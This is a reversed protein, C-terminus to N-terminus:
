QPWHTHPRYEPSSREHTVEDLLFRIEALAVPYLDAVHDRQEPPMGNLMALLPQTIVLNAPLLRVLCWLEFGARQELFALAVAYVYTQLRPRANNLRVILDRRLEEATLSNLLPMSTM